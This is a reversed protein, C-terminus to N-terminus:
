CGSWGVLTVWRHLLSTWNLPLIQHPATRMMRPALAPLIWRTVFGAVLVGVFALVGLQSLGTISSFLM